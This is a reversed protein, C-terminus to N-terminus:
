FLSNRSCFCSQIRVLSLLLLLFFVFFCFFRKFVLEKKIKNNNNNKLFVLVLVGLTRSEGRAGMKKEMQCLLLKIKEISLNKKSVELNPKKKV